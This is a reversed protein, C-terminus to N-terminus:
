RFVVIALLIVAGLAIGAAYWRLNGTQTQSLASHVLLSLNALGRYLVDVIDDKNVRALWLLPRVFLRDYLADFGWGALWFRRIGDVAPALRFTVGRHRRYIWWAVGIGAFTTLGSLTQLLAEEAPTGHAELPSLVPKLWDSFLHIGGLDAPIEVFGSVVALVALVALPVTMLPGPKWTPAKQEPGHFVLFVMRFTYIATLLAGVMGVGWLWRNGTIWEDYLILDKSYFGATILPFAALSLAGVLFTRYVAPLRKALGGM